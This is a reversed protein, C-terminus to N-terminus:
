QNSLQAVLKKFDETYRIKDFDSSAFWKDKMMEMFTRDDDTEFDNLDFPEENEYFHAYESVDVGDVVVKKRTNEM